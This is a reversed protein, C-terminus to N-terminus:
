RFVKEYLFADGGNPVDRYFNQLLELREYGNREYFAIASPNRSHVHLVVRSSGAKTAATEGACLLRSGIGLRSFKAAVDLTVVYASAEPLRHVEVIIFGAISNPSEAIVTIAGPEEAFQHMESRSFRFAPAFCLSDLRMLADLDQPLYRRLAILPSEEPPIM